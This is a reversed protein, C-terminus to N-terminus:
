DGGGGGCGGCGSGCGGGGSDGGGSDSSGGGSSSSDTSCGSGSTPPTPYWELMYALATGALVAPGFLGVAMGADGAAGTKLAAHKKQLGGLASEGRRSLRYSAASAVFLGVVGGVLITGVLFAVPKGAGLGLLLRPVALGVVVVILPLLSVFWIGMQRGLPITFGDADLRVAEDRFAAEVAKQVPKLEAATNRVPLLDYVAQEVPTLDRPAEDGRELRTRDAPVKALKRGALRAIAATTLRPFGGALYAAQEWMLALDGDTPHPGPTKMQSGAVRGVIMAAVMMPILFGLFDKGVLDFPNMGGACGTGFIVALAAAAVGAVARRAWAKPVVWNRATNVVRQKADDGFRSGATPWVDAPPDEGFADRYAAFTDAYMAVHKDAEAPGGRTPEHHLPRGLVEGCLRQWYSRTYTLHLHWAADVDESPCMPRGATAALFVFRKYERVVRDAHVATWGHERALRAAFRLPPADPGDIPFEAVRRLLEAHAPTM